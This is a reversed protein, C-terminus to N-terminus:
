CEIARGVRGIRVAARNEADVDVAGAKGVQMRKGATISRQWITSQSYRSARKISGCGAASSRAIAGNEFEVRIACRKDGQVTEASGVPSAWGAHNDGAVSQEPRCSYAPRRTAAGNEGEFCISSPEHGQM